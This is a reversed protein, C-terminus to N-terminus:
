WDLVRSYHWVLWGISNCQPDPQWSLEERTLGDLSRRMSGCNQDICNRIFEILSM